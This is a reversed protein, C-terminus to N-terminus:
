AASLGYLRFEGSVISGDEFRFQIATIDAASLRQGCGTVRFLAGSNDNQMLEWSIEGYSAATPNYLTVEGSVFENTDSGVGLYSLSLKTDANDGNGTVTGAQSVAVMAWKYDSGGEDYNSGNDTSTRMWLTRNDNETKLHTFVVKYAIYSSSLGTFVVTSSSSATASSILAYDGGGVEGTSPVDLTARVAAADADDLISRAFATCAIEEVDGSGSTSRGLLKDTASVDQMKAYTVVNNDITWVTGSSSVTIDGKDGDEILIGAASVFTSGSRKVFQGDTIAGFTYCVSNGHVRSSSM